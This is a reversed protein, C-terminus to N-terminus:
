REALACMEAVSRSIPLLLPSGSDAPPAAALRYRRSRGRIGPQVVVPRANVRHGPLRVRRVIAGRAKFHLHSCRARIRYDIAGRNVAVLGTCTRNERQGRRNAIM